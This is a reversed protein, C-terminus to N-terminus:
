SASPITRQRRCKTRIGAQTNLTARHRLIQASEDNLTGVPQDSETRPNHRHDADDSHRPVTPQM